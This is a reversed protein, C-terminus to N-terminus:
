SSEGDELYEYGLHAPKWVELLGDEGGSVMLNTLNPHWDADSIKGTHGGHMFVLCPDVSDSRRKDPEGEDLKNLDWVLARHDTSSSLLYNEHFKLGVVPAKHGVLRRIPISPNRLDWIQISNDSGGTAFLTSVTQNFEVVNIPYNMNSESDPDNHADIIHIIPGSPLRLDHIQYSSDDSVSAFLSDITKNWSVDNVINDHTSIVQSPKVEKGLKENSLDWLAIKCDESSSLLLNQKCPNPNWELGFGEKTHFKLTSKHTKSDKDKIDYLLIDGTNTHTVFHTNSKNIQLKNVEGPHNWERIINLQRSKLLSNPIKISGESKYEQSLTPPLSVSVLKVHNQGEKANTGMLLTANLFAEGSDTKDNEFGNMWKVTLPPTDCAYTYLLDYLLPSTKKWIKYEENIM